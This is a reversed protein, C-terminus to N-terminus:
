IIFEHKPIMCTFSQEQKGEIWELSTEVTYFKQMNFIAHKRKLKRTQKTAIEKFELTNADEGM